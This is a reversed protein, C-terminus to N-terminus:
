GLEALAQETRELYPRAGLRTFIARAEQLDTRAPEADGRQARMMGRDLRVRGEHFVWGMSHALELAEAFDAEAEESRGQRTRLLAEVDLADALTHGLGGERCKKLLSTLMEEARDEEGVELYIRVIGPAVWPGGETIVARDVHEAAQQPGGRLLELEGLASRVISVGQLDRSNEAITLGEDLLEELGEWNGQRVRL